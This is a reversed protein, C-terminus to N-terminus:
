LMSWGAVIAIAINGVLSLTEASDTKVVASKASETSPHGHHAVGATAIPADQAAAQASCARCNKSV